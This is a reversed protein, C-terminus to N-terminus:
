KFPPRANAILEFLASLCCGWITWRWYNHWFYTDVLFIKCVLGNSPTKGYYYSEQSNLKLLFCGDVLNGYICFSVVSKLFQNLFVSSVLFFVEDGPWGFLLLGSTCKLTQFLSVPSPELRQATHDLFWGASDAASVSRHAEGVARVELKPSVRSSVLFNENMFFLGGFQLFAWYFHFSIFFSFHITMCAHRHKM